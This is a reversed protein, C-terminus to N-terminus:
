SLRSEVGWGVGLGSIQSGNSIEDGREMDKKQEWTDRFDVWKERAGCGGQELSDGHKGVDQVVAEESVREAEVSAEGDLLQPAFRMMKSRGLCLGSFAGTAGIILLAWGWQPTAIILIWGWQPREFQTNLEEGVM